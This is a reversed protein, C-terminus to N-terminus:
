RMKQPRQQATVAHRVSLVRTACRLGAGTEERVPYSHLRAKESAARSGRM